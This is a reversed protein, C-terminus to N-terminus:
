STNRESMLVVVDNVMSSMQEIRTAWDKIM